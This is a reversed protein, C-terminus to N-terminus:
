GELLEQIEKLKRLKRLAKFIRSYVRNLSIGLYNSIEHTNMGMLYKLIIVDSYKSSLKKIANYILRRTEENEVSKELESGHPSGKYIDGENLDEILIKKRKKEKRYFDYVANEAIRMLWSKLSEGKFNKIRCFGKLFVEATIDKAQEMEGVKWYIYRYIYKEYMGVILEFSKKDGGASKRALEREDVEIM